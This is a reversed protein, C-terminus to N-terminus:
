LNDYEGYLKGNSYARIARIFTDSTLNHELLVQNVCEWFNDIIEVSLESSGFKKYPVVGFPAGEFDFNSNVKASKIGSTTEIYFDYEM